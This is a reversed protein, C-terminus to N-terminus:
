PIRVEPNIMPGTRSLPPPYTWHSHNERFTVQGTVLWSLAEPYLRHELALVKQALSDASDDPAVPLVGQAIIPGADLEATVFHVTAGHWCVGAEIAHRHTHLGPFSPLLSPHINVLRGLYHEVFGPTLQRMFGALAIWDPELRDIALALASDFQERGSFDRHSLSRAFIGQKRSWDLGPADPRSSIVGTVDCDPIKGNKCADAIAQLNSGRGSILVALRRRTLSSLEPDM